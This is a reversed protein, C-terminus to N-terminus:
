VPSCPTTLVEERREGKSTVDGHPTATCRSNQYWCKWARAPGIPEDGVVPLGHAQMELVEIVVPAAPLLRDALALEIRNDIFISPYRGSDVLLQIRV